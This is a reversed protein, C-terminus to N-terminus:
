GDARGEVAHLAAVSTSRRTGMRAGLLAASAKVALSVFFTVTLDTPQM